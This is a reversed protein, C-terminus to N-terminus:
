GRVCLMANSCLGFGAVPSRSLMYVESPGESKVSCCGCGAAALTDLTFGAVDNVGIPSDFPTDNEYTLLNGHSM